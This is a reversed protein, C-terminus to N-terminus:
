DHGPLKEQEDDNLGIFLLVQSLALVSLWAPLARLPM